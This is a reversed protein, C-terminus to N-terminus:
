YQKNITIAVQDGLKVAQSEGYWDNDKTSVDGDQDIRAKVMLTELQAISQGELMINADDLVVTRPYSGIPFRAAAIPVPSGNGDHISVILVGQDPLQASEDLTITIPVSTTTVPKGLMKEANQISRDLMSYRNDEPGILKQMTQWFRIAEEYAGNQYSNFALLSYVRLDVYDDQLLGILISRAQQQQQENEAMMLSQAYGLRIDPDDANLDYAKRMAGFATDADRDAMAIRGLLLWGQADEAQYHLRTRLALKLDKLEDETLSQQEPSMLKETLAPLKNNITQWHQVKDVSGFVSYMAYSIVAVLLASSIFVMKPSISFSQKSSDNAPIDELLSKKLDVILENQDNVIGGDVEAALEQLRDKYFAKNLEDRRAEDDFRSKNMLPLAIFACGILTLVLTSLWFLTM